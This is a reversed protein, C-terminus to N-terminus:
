AFCGLNLFHEFSCKTTDKFIVNLHANPLPLPLVNKVCV